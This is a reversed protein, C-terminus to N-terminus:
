RTMDVSLIVVWTYSGMHTYELILTTIILGETLGRDPNLVRRCFFRSFDHFVALRGANDCNWDCVSSIM